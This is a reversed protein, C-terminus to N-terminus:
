RGAQIGRADSPNAQMQSERCNFVCRHGKCHDLKACHIRDGGFALVYLGAAGLMGLPPATFYIWLARYQRAAIASAFTRAPNISMGSVPAEIAIYLAVLLGAFLGTFPATAHHTTSVLVMGMMGFAIALEALFAARVGSRGPSTVVFNVSEHRITNGLVAWAALVGSIGGAFQSLIYFVADWAKVKGLVLFSLTTGPNMHAGSRQGWPSYILAIATLGMLLGIISRRLINSRIVARVLSAPHELVAVAVCAVFMFTGLLAGEILYEPWHHSLAKWM